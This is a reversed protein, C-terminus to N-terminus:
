GWTVTDLVPLHLGPVTVNSTGAGGNIADLTYWDVGEVRSIAEHLRSNRVYTTGLNFRHTRLAAALETLIAARVDAEVYDPLVELTITLALTTEYPAYVTLVHPAPKEGEIYAQVTAVQESTPIGSTTAFFIIVNGAAATPYGFPWAAVVDVGPTELAWTEYDHLNGGHPPKRKRDLIRGRYAEVDEDDEGGTLGGTAVYATASIGAPPSALILMTGAELNGAAGPEVAEIPVDETEADFIVADTTVFRAGSEDTLVAALPLTAGVTGSVTVLGSSARAAERLVGLDNGHQLLYEDTATRAFFQKAMYGAFGHLDAVSCVLARAVLWPTSLRIRATTDGLRGAIDDTVRDLLTEMSPLTFAM